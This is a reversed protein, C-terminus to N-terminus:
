KEKKINLLLETLVTTFTHLREQIRGPFEKELFAINDKETHWIAGHKVTQTYGDKDGIQWNTAEFYAIPIGSAEFPAHDSWDGTTGKPYDPNLGPNTTVDLKKKAAVKLAQDRVWGKAAEKSGYVYMYDGAVLSDLNIMAVTNEKETESMQSLYYTSGNLGGEEAGFLVFKITHPTKKKKLAKAAELIVGVSSANDDAGKATAVSDYHAGVIIEKKSKGKKVAIVNESSIQNGKRTFTFPQAEVDYGLKRLERQIYESTEKEKETGMVRTGITESIYTMHKYAIKGNKKGKVPGHASAVSACLLTFIITIVVSVKKM